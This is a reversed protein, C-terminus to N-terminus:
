RDEEPLPGHEWRFTEYNLHCREGCEECDSEVMFTTNM